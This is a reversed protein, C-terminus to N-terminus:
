VNGYHEKIDTAKQIANGEINAQTEPIDEHCNIDSLTIITIHTPFLYQVEKLKNLNNTAFVIKM